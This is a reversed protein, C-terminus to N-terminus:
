KRRPTTDQRTKLRRFQHRISPRVALCSRCKKGAVLIECSTPRVTEDYCADKVVIPSFSDIDALKEGSGTFIQGRCSKVFEVWETDPHGPCINAENLVKLLSEVSQQTTLVSPVSALVLTCSPSLQHGHVYIEWTGDSNISLSHTVKMSSGCSQIKCIKIVRGSHHSSWSSSPLQISEVNVESLPVDIVETTCDDSLQAEEHVADPKKTKCRCPWGRPNKSASQIKREYNKVLRGINRKKRGAMVSYCVFLLERYKCLFICSYWISYELIISCHKHM